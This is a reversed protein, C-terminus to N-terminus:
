CPDSLMSIISEGHQRTHHSPVFCQTGAVYIYLHLHFTPVQLQFLEGCGTTCSPVVPFVSFLCCPSRITHIYLLLLSRHHASATEDTVKVPGQNSSYGRTAGRRNKERERRNSRRTHRTVGRQGRPCNPVRRRTPSRHSISLSPPLLLVVSTVCSIFCMGGLLYFV